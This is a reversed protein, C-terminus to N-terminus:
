PRPRAPTRAQDESPRRQPRLQRHAGLRDVATCPGCVLAVVSCGVMIMLSTRPQRSGLFGLDFATTSLLAPPVQVWSGRIILGISQGASSGGRSETTRRAPTCSHIM